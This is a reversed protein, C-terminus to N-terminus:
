SAKFIGFTYHSEDSINLYFSMVPQRFLHLFWSITISMVLRRNIVSHRLGKKGKKRYMIGWSYIEVILKHNTPQLKIINISIEHPMKRLYKQM